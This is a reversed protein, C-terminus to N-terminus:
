SWCVVPNSAEYVRERHGQVLHAYAQVYTCAVRDITFNEIVRQQMAKGISRRRSADKVLASLISALAVKDGPACLLKSGASGVLMQTGGVLTSVIPLGAAMAELIANSNGEALSPLVFVDMDCLRARVNEVYGRLMVSKSIDLNAVIEKLKTELPGSGWLELVASANDVRTLEIWAELLIELGKQACLRGVFVVRCPQANTRPLSDHSEHLRLRIGNPTALTRTRPFGVESLERLSQPSMAVLVDSLLLISLRLRGLGLAKLGPIGLEGVNPLKTLIPKGLV